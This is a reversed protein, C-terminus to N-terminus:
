RDGEGDGACAMLVRRILAPVLKKRYARGARVNELLTLDEMARGAAARCTEPDAPRDELYQEAATLRRPRNVAASLALRVKRFRGGDVHALCALDAIAVDHETRAFKIFAGRAGPAPKPFVVETVLWGAPRKNARDSYYDVLPIRRGGSGATVLEAELVLLPAPLDALLTGSVLDGAVTAMNRIQRGAVSRAARGLMELQPTGVIKSDALDQITAAAGLRIRDGETGITNLGLGTIDVLVDYPVQRAMGLFTGGAIYRARGEVSRIMELAQSVSTPRLYERVSPM